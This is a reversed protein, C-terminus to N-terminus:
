SSAVSSPAASAVATCAGQALQCAPTEGGRVKQAQRIMRPLPKVVTDLTSKPGAQVQAIGIPRPASIGTLRVRAPLTQPRDPENRIWGLGPSGSRSSRQDPQGKLAVQARCTRIAQVGSGPLSPVPSGTRTLAALWGDQSTTTLTLTALLESGSTASEEIRRLAGPNRTNGSLCYTPSVPPWM